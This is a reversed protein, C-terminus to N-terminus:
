QSDNMLIQLQELAESNRNSTQYIQALKMRIARQVARSKADFLLKKFYEAQAEAPQDRMVDEAMRVAAIGMAEPDKAIATYHEVVWVSTANTQWPETTPTNMAPPSDDARLFTCVSATLAITMMWYFLRHKM